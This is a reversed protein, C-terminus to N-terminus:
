SGGSTAAPFRDSSSPLESPPSLSFGSGELDDTTSTEVVQAGTDDHKTASAAAGAFVTTAIAALAALLKTLRSVARRSEAPPMPEAVSGM